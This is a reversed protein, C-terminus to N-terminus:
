REIKHGFSDHTPERVVRSPWASDDACFSDWLSLLADSLVAYEAPDLHDSQVDDGLRRVEVTVDLGSEDNIRGCVYTVWAEFDEEDVGRMGDRGLVVRVDKSLASQIWTEWADRTSVGVEYKM